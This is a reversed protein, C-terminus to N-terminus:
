RWTTFLMLRDYYEFPVPRGVVFPLTLLGVVVCAMCFSWALVRRRRGGHEGAGAVSPVPEGRAAWAAGSIRSLATAVMIAMFPIVPVMYHIYTQRSTLLWPLYLMGVLAPSLGLRWDRRLVALVGLVVWAAVAAWWLLANGISLLGTTGEPGLAWSYWIPHADFPWTLPASAFSRDGQVSWGFTAMHAQLRAWDGLGPGAAFYPLSTVLYVAAPVLLLAAAVVALRSRRRRGRWLPPAVVVLVAAFALAGSWKCAVAAGLAAGCGVIWGPSFGSQVYCLALYVALATALAVFTDLVGLRAEIMLMPDAAALVLAALSWEANLGM